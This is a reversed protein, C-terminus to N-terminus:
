LFVFIVVFTIGAVGWSFEYLNNLKQMGEPSRVVASLHRYLFTVAGFFLLGTFFVVSLLKVM